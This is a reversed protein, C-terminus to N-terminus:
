KVILISADPALNLVKQSISGLFYEKIGSTGRRGIVILDYGSRAENAIDRAIGKKKPESKLQIQDEGFGKEILLSKAKLQAESLLEKQKDELM